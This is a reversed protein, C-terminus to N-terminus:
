KTFFFLPKASLLNHCKNYGAVNDIFKFTYKYFLIINIIYIYIYVPQCYMMGSIVHRNVSFLLRLKKYLLM